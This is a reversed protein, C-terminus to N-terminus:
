CSAFTVLLVKRSEHPDKEALEVATMAFWFSSSKIFAAKFVASLEPHESAKDLGTNAPTFRRFSVRIRPKLFSSM